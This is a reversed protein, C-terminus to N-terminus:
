VKLKRSHSHAFSNSFCNRATKLLHPVDCFFYVSRSQDYPNITKYPINLSETSSIRFFKRNASLGDCTVSLVEFENLELAEVTNWVLPYLEEATLSLTPYQAVPFTFSPKFIARAMLVLMHDVLTPIDEQNKCCMISELKKLDSSVNCLEIFGVLRRSSKSFVLGSKIKMEDMLLGFKKPCKERGVDRKFREMVDSSTGANFKMVHTYDQLTRKSSLHLFNGVAKYATSSLYRLNLAFRIILPHWWMGKKSKSKNFLMQQEWFIQQFDNKSLNRTIETSSTSIIVNMDDSDDDHLRLGDKSILASIKQKLRQVHRTSSRKANQVTKLREQLEKLNLYRYNTHSCHAVKDDKTESKKAVLACLVGSYKHCIKCQVAGM